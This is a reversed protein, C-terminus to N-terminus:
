TPTLPRPTSRLSAGRSRLRRPSGGRRFAADAQELLSDAQLGISLVLALAFTKM